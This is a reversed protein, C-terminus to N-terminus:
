FPGPDIKRVKEESLPEFSSLPFGTSLLVPQEEQYSDPVSFNQRIKSIKTEFFDSFRDAAIQPPLDPLTDTRKQRGLLSDLFAFMKKPDSEAEQLKARLM